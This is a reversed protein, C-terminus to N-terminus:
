FFKKFEKKWQPREAFTIYFFAIKILRLTAIYIIFTMLSFGFAEEIYYSNEDWIWILLFPLIIYLSIYIIKAFRLWWKQDFSEQNSFVKDSSKITNPHGCKTCFEHSEEIKKGCNECFM